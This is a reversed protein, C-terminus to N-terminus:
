SQNPSSCVSKVAHLGVKILVSYNTQVNTLRDSSLSPHTRSPGLSVRHISIARLVHATCTPSAGVQELGAGKAGGEFAFICLTDTGLDTVFHHANAYPETVCCHTHPWRQRYAWHEEMTPNQEDCYEAGAQMTVQVAEGAVAGDTDLALVALKADWYNVAV